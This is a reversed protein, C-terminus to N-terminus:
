NAEQYAVKEGNRVLFVGTDSGANEPFNHYYRKVIVDTYKPDLEMSRCVRGTQEAALITTGSGGFLDLVLEGKHSSNVIAKAVLAIPKMTPHEDSRKPRPIDWVDSQKRDLLPCLRSSGELWGYWIPEYQTHYDKRSLVLSDKRWIITSSWHYGAERMADMLSGWEQASMVVYTMCGPESVASMTSFVKLMFNKFDGTSMSDNIIQRDPKWSPHSSGGYDVNWPPDTFVHRAKQGDMLVKVDDVSTSDGCMLRHKGLLWIDGRQSIPTEIASLVANTDFEDEKVEGLVVEKAEIELDFGFDEMTFDLSLGGLEDLELRLLEDDWDALEATKNDILRFAKIQADSLNEAITCPVTKMGLEMAAKLRTHGAVIENNKDLLIPWIFGFERISNAVKKVAHDNNRPNNKYPKISTIDVDHIIL